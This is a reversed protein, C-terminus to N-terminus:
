QTTSVVPRPKNIIPLFEARTHLAVLDPDEAARSTPFGAELARDLLELARPALRNEQATEVLLALACAANYTRHPTAILSLREADDVAALDGLRARLLARLQLADLLNADSALAANAHALAERPSGKRLLLALGFHARPNGPDLELAHELDARAGSPEHAVRFVGRATLLVPDDPRDKLLDAFLRDAGARDGRRAKVEASAALVGSDRVGLSMAEGLAREAEPLDNLELATLALNLWAEAFRPSIKVAVEYEGRAETLRGARALALGRNMRPWAFKPELVVCAEFHGAAELYRGQEFRCHGLAFWAWFARTDLTTARLLMAEAHPLDGRALLSTGLLAFDRASRPPRQAELQRDRTALDAQGLAAHYRARDAYLAAPPSPDLREARDLWALSWELASRRDNERGVRAAQYTRARALLLVLEVTQGAVEERERATLRNVWSDKQWNGAQDILAQNLTAEGLAIGPELHEVPGSALNLLFQCESLDTRFVQLHLRAALNRTSSSLLGILGGLALISLLAAASISTSSCFRPNRRAWKAMRERVSPEPTHKLSLDDLFRGLDEALERARAYRKAPDPDLCKATIADLSWPVTPRHERLSPAQKRLDTMLRIMDLLPLGPPPEPFPHDGAIMEFLILGLAYIDSRENVADARTTGEPNFADLHEPSMYPLTGGLMARQGEELSRLETTTSLNFDLLMPTGDAAILINSPKLDRHLLGRSHAHELGEALRAIVWVAAHVSDASRLFQRAPQDFDREDLEGLGTTNSRHRWAIWGWLSQLRALSGKGYSPGHIPQLGFSPSSFLAARPDDAGGAHSRLRSQSRAYSGRSFLISRVSGNASQFRESVEDLAEVLSPGVEMAQRRTGAAELVQALNAGGLYPMCLLRLGTEPDDHVSHIPVIHTHQLRALLQPEDGEAKSVKLAVLRRGLDVQEALYVRAFAGRGLEALLVFGSLVDGRKPASSPSRPTREATERGLGTKPVDEAGIPRALLSDAADHPDAEFAFNHFALEKSPELGLSPVDQTSPAPTGALPPLLSDDPNLSDEPEAGLNWDGLLGHTSDGSLPPLPQSMASRPPPEDACIAHFPPRDDPWSPGIAWVESYAAVPLNDLSRPHKLRDVVTAGPLTDPRMFLM